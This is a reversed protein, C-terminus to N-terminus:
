HVLKRASGEDSQERTSGRAEGRGAGQTSTEDL